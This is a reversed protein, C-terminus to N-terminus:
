LLEDGTSNHIIDRVEEQTLVRGDSGIVQHASALEDVRYRFPVYPNDGYFIPLAVAYGKRGMDINAKVRKLWEEKPFIPPPQVYKVVSKVTIDRGCPTKGFSVADYTLNHSGNFAVTISVPFNKDVYDKDTPSHFAGMSHHSHIIGVCNKPIHFPEAEASAGGVDAHPPVNIDEVFINEKESIRGVLYALWEQHPYEDMLARIKQRALAEIFTVPSKVLSCKLEESVQSPKGWM